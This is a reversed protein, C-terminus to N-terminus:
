STSENKTHDLYAEIKVDVVKRQEQLSKFINKSPNGLYMATMGRERAINGVVDNLYRNESLKDHLMEAREYNKYSDYLYYSTLSFLIIIPFLSILRLRNKLGLQM